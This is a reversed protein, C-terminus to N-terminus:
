HRKAKRARCLSLTRVTTWLWALRADSRVRVDENHEREHHAAGWRSLVEAAAHHVQEVHCEVADALHSDLVGPM